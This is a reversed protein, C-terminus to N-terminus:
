VLIIRKKETLEFLRKSEDFLFDSLTRSNYYEMILHIKKNELSVGMLYIFNPHRISQLIKIENKIDKIM